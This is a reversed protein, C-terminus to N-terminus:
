LELHHAEQHEETGEEEINFDLHVWGYQMGYQVFSPYSAIFYCPLGVCVQCMEDENERENESEENGGKNRAELDDGEKDRDEDDGSNNGSGNESGSGNKSGCGSDDAGSVWALILTKM